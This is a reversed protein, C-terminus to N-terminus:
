YTGYTIKAYDKEFIISIDWQAYSEGDKGRNEKIYYWSGDERKNWESLKTFRNDITFKLNEADKLDFKLTYTEMWDVGIPYYEYDVVEYNPFEIGFFKYASTHNFIENKESQSLNDFTKEYRKKEDYTGQPDFTNYVVYLIGSLITLRGILCIIIFNILSQKNGKITM